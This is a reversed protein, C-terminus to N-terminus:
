GKPLLSSHHHIIKWEGAEDKQWVFSFRAEVTQRDDEPGVSFNYLGSHLYSDDGLPQYEDEVIEGEPNKELFHKFYEEAGDPGKKFENSMTPLFTAASDYLAAVEAAERSRLAENWLAFNNRALELGNEQNKIQEM